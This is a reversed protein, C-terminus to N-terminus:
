RECFLHPERSPGTFHKVGDAGTKQNLLRLRSVQKSQQAEVRDRDRYPKNGRIADFRRSRSIAAMPRIKVSDVLLEPLHRQLM